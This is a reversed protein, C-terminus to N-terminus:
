IQKVPIYINFATGEKPKSFVEIKGEFDSLYSCVMPLGLGTGKNSNKTTYFLEFIHSLISKDMGIGNDQITLIIYNGPDLTFSEYKKSKNLSLNKTLITIKGGTPMADRANNILNVLIREIKGPDGRVSWLNQSLDMEFLIQDSILYDLLNLLKTIISNVKIDAKMETLQGYSFLDDIAKSSDTVASTVQKLLKIVEEGNDLKMIALNVKNKIVTLSHKFDHIIGSSLLGISEIRQLNQLNKKLIEKAMLNNKIENHQIITQTEDIDILVSQHTSAIDLIQYKQYNFIPYTCIAKIFKDKILTNFQLEYDLFTNLDEKSILRVDGTIRIGSYNKKLAYTLNQNWSNILNQANLSGSNKYWEEYNYFKFQEKELYEGFKYYKKFFYDIIEQETINESLVWICYENNELGAMFFSTLVKLFNVKNDYFYCFHSGWNLKEFTISM